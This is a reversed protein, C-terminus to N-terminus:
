PACGYLRDGAIAVPFHDEPKDVSVLNGYLDVSCFYGAPKMPKRASKIPSFRNVIHFVITEDRNM